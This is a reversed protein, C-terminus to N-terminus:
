NGLFGRKRIPMSARAYLRAQGIFRRIGGALEFSYKDLADQALDLIAKETQDDLVWNKEEAKGRLNRLWDLGVGTMGTDGLATRYGNLEKDLKTLANRLQPLINVKPDTALGGIWGICPELRVLVERKTLYNLTLDGLGELQERDEIIDKDAYAVVLDVFTTELVNVAKEAIDLQDRLDAFLDDIQKTKREQIRQVIEDIAKITDAISLNISLIAPSGQNTGM